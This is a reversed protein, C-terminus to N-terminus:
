SGESSGAVRSRFLEAVHRRTTAIADLAYGGIHPTVVVLDPRERALAVLPQAPPVVGPWRSDDAVVDVAVGALHGARLAAVLAPEDVLEGRASNVLVAGLRMAAIREASLFGVTSADLPLHLSVVDSGQLLDDLGTTLAGVPARALQDADLDHVLVEMGFALGYGAVMRGLRGCGVVGLVRGRLETGVFPAREWRGELVAAHAVTIHRLLALVLGWTLEATAAVTDLLHTEGKLSIVEVGRDSALALDIHDLGTTPTVVWRLSPAADMAAADVALGIRVFAAAYPAGALAAVFAGQGDCEVYDVDGAAEVIRREEPGYRAPEAHLIRVRPRNM